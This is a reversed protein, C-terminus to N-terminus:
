LTNDYSINKIESYNDLDANIAVEDSSEDAIALTDATAGSRIDVSLTDVSTTAPIPAVAPTVVEALTPAPEAPAPEAPTAPRAAITEATITAPVVAIAVEKNSSLAYWAGVGGVLVVAAAGFISFRNM